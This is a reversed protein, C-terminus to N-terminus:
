RQVMRSLLFGALIILGLTEILAIAQNPEVWEFLTHPDLVFTTTCCALVLVLIFACSLIVRDKTNLNKM